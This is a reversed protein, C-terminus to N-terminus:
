FITSTVTKGGLGILPYLFNRKYLFIIFFCFNKLVQKIFSKMKLGKFMLVNNWFLVKFVGGRM